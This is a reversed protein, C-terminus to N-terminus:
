QLQEDLQKDKNFSSRVQAMKQVDQDGDMLPVYLKNTSIIDICWDIDM